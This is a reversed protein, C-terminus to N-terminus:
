VLDPAALVGMASQLEGSVRRADAVASDAASAQLIAQELRAELDTVRGQLRAAYIGAGLTVVLTAAVPLWRLASMEFRAPAVAPTGGFSELVRRRLEPRPTRQPVGRALTDTVGLFARVEAACEGCGALHSEFAVREAADLGGLVYAGAHDKLDTHSANM